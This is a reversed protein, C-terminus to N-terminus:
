LREYVTKGRLAFHERHDTFNESHGIFLLGGPRLVQAFRDLIQRQTPKDFYIMVNRCFIVDLTPAFSKLAPWSAELLNLPAFSILKPLEPKIRVMGENAGAGRLFFKRLREEGAQRASDLRYVGRGATALVNTDIDTALLRASTNAGLAETMTMAISYPEEGTSAASCWLRLPTGRDHRKLFDHLVPFHHPERFFATLNTTLANVFEQAERSDFTPDSELRDLYAAFSDIGLTRLRRSLRSYVMNQKSENLSIGARVHILKRVREFDARTFAYERAADTQLTQDDFYDRAGM